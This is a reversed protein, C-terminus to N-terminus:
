WVNLCRVPQKCVNHGKQQAAEGFVTQVAELQVYHPCLCRVHADSLVSIDASMHVQMAM